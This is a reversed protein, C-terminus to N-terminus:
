GKMYVALISVDSPSVGAIRSAQGLSRPKVKNLKERGENSLSKIKKYDFGQPIEMSESENFSRIHENQRRIYGEYKIEIEVQRLAEENTRLEDILRNDKFYDLEVFSNIQLENRKLLQSASESQTLETSNNQSLYNNVDIPSLYLTKLYDLANTILNQKKLINAYTDGPILGFKHGYKALRLDANDQRLLLRYEACSTFM